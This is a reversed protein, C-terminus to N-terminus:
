CRARRARAARPLATARLGLARTSIRPRLAALLAAEDLVGEGVGALREAALEGLAGRLRLRSSPTASRKPRSRAARADLDVVVGVDPCWRTPAIITAPGSPKEFLWYRLNLMLDCLERGAVVEAHHALHQAPAEGAQSSVSASRSHRKRCCRSFFRRM